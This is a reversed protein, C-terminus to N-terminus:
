MGKGKAQEMRREYSSLEVLQRKRRESSKGLGKKIGVKENISVAGERGKDIVKWKLVKACSLSCM